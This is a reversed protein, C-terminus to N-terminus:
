LTRTEKTSGPRMAVGMQPLDIASPLFCMFAIGGMMKQEGIDPVTALQLRIRDALEERAMSM